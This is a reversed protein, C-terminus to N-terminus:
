DAREEGMFGIWARVFAEVSNFRVGSVVLVSGDRDFSFEYGTYADGHWDCFRCYQFRGIEEEVGADDRQKPFLFAMPIAHQCRPCTRRENKPM